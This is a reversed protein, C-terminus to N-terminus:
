IPWCRKAAAIMPAFRSVKHVAHLRRYERITMNEPIDPHGEYLFNRRDCEKFVRRGM